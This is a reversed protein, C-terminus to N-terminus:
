RSRRGRTPEPETRGSRMREEYDEPLPILPLAMLQNDHRVIVVVAVVVAAGFLLLPLWGSSERLRLRSSSNEIITM